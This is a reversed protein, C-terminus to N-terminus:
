DVDPTQQLEYTRRMRMIQVYEPEERVQASLVFRCAGFELFGPALPAVASVIRYVYIRDGNTPEGSGLLTTNIAVAFNQELTTNKTWTWARGYMIQQFGENSNEFQGPLTNWVNTPGISVSSWDIASTSAIVYEVAFAQTVGMSIASRQVDGGMPYLTLEQKTLGAIDIISEHVFYTGAAKSVKTYTGLSPTNAPPPASTQGLGSDVDIRLYPLDKVLVVDKM